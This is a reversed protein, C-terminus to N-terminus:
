RTGTSDPTVLSPALAGVGLWRKVISDPGFVLQEGSALSSRERAVTYRVLTVQPVAAFGDGSWVFRAAATNLWNSGVAIEDFTGFGNLWEINAKSPPDLLVGLTSLMRGDRIATARLSDMLRRVNTDLGPLRCSGCAHSAVFVAVDHVGAIENRVVPESTAASPAVLPKGVAVVGAGLAAAAVCVMGLQMASRGLLTPQTM